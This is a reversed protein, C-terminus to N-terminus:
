GLRLYHVLIDFGSGTAPAARSPVESILLSRAILLGAALVVMSLALGLGSGVLARYRNRALYIGVVFLLLVVWPLVNALTNLASYAGQARVLTKADAVKVTPHVEPVLKVATLGRS